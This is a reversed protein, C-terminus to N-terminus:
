LDLDARYSAEPRWSHALLFGEGVQMAHFDDLDDAAAQAADVLRSWEEPTADVRAWGASRLARVHRSLVAYLADGQGEWYRAFVIMEDYRLDLTITHLEDYSGLTGITPEFTTTQNLHYM